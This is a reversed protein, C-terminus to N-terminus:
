KFIEKLFDVNLKEFDKLLHTFAGNHFIIDDEDPSDFGAFKGNMGASGIWYEEAKDGTGHKYYLDNGWGDKLAEKKVYFPSLLKELDQMTKGEPAKKKDLSYEEIGNGTFHLNKLTTKYREEVSPGCNLLYIAMVFIVIIMTVKKM